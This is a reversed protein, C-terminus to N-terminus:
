SRRKDPPRPRPESENPTMLGVLDVEEVAADAATDDPAIGIPLVCGQAFTNAGSAPTTRITRFRERVAGDLDITRQLAIVTGLPHEALSAAFGIEEDAAARAAPLDPAGHREVLRHALAATATEVDGSTAEAVEVLTSWGFSLLGLFGSRFAAREKGLLQAPDGDWFMFAGPTAWEGAAAAHPFVFTDSRDLRITRLLKM